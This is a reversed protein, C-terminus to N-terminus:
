RPPTGSTSRQPWSTFFGMKRVKQRPPHILPFETLRSGSFRMKPHVLVQNIFMLSMVSNPLGLNPPIPVQLARGPERLQFFGMKPVTKPPPHIFLFETPRSGLYRM